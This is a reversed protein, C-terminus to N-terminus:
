DPRLHVDFATVAAFGLRMYIRAAQETDPALVALQAGAGLGEQVLWSSVAAGIGRRRAREAVAVGGVFVAPGARGDTRLAWGTAVLEGGLLGRATTLEPAHLHPELWARSEASDGDYAAADLAALGDLDEPTAAALALDAVVGAPRFDEPALAMLDRRFLHRGHRWEIEAPVRV